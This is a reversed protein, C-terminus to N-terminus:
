VIKLYISNKYATYLEGQNEVYMKVPTKNGKVEKNECFDTSYQYYRFNCVPVPALQPSAGPSVAAATDKKYARSYALVTTLM